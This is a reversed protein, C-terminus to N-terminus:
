YALLVKLLLKPYSLKKKTRINNKGLISLENNLNYIKNRYIIKCKIKYKRIFDKGLIKIIDNNEYIDNNIQNSNNTQM